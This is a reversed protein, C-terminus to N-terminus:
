RPAAPCDDGTANVSTVRMRRTELRTQAETRVEAGRDGADGSTGTPAPASSERVTAVQAPEAMGIVRVEKGVHQRLDDDSGVLQYLETEATAGGSELATLVFRGGAATLCGTEEVTTTEAIDIDDEDRANSDADDTRGCGVALGVCLGWVGLMTIRKM